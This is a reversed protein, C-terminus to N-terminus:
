HVWELGAKLGERFNHEMALWFSVSVLTLNCLKQAIDATIPVEGAIIGELVDKPIRYLNWAVRKPVGNVEFWDALVAGPHVVYNPEYPFTM